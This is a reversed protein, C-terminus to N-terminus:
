LNMQYIQYVFALVIRFTQQNNQGYKSCQQYTM